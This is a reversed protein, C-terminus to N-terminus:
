RLLDFSLSRSDGNLRIVKRNPLSLQELTERWKIMKGCLIGFSALLIVSDM